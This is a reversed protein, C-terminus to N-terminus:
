MLGQIPSLTSPRLLIIHRSEQPLLWAEPNHTDKGLSPTVFFYDLVKHQSGIGLLYEHAGCDSDSDCPNEHYLRRSPYSLPHHSLCVVCTEQSAKARCMTDAKGKKQSLHRGTGNVQVLVQFAGGLGDKLASAAFANALACVVCLHQAHGERLPYLQDHSGILLADVEDVGFLVRAYGRPNSDGVVLISELCVDNEELFCVELLRKAKCQLRCFRRLIFPSQDARELHVILGDVQVVLGDAVVNRVVSRRFWVIAGVVHVVGACAHKRNRGSYRHVLLVAGESELEEHLGYAEKLSACDIGEHIVEKIDVHRLAHFRDLSRHWRLLAAM